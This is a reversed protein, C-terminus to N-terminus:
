TTREHMRVSSCYEKHPLIFYTFMLIGTTAMGPFTEYTANANKLIREIYVRREGPVCLTCKKGGMKLM